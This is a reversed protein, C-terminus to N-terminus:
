KSAPAASIKVLEEAQARYEPLSARFEAPSNGIADFGATHIYKQLFQPEKMIEAIARSLTAVRDAPTGAPAFAGFWNDFKLPPLGAETDTPVDPLEPNRKTGHVLIGKAGGARIKEVIPPTAVPDFLQVDGREFALMAPAAGGFPIHTAKLGTKVKVWEVLLHAAGGTGFSAYNLKDPNERTYAVLESLIKAPVSNSLVLVQRAAVMNTIPEFDVQPDYSLNREVFPNISITSVTLMCITYGDPAANKCATAGIVTNAGAKNDIIFAQGTRARFGEGLARALVDLPGGPPFPVIVRVQRSPFDQAAVPAPMTALGALCGALCTLFKVAKM